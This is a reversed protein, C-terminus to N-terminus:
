QEGKSESEIDKKILEIIYANKSPVSKLKEIVDEYEYRIKLSTYYYNNKDYESIYNLKNKSTKTKRPRGM